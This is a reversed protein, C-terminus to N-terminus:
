QQPGKEPRARSRVGGVRGRVALCLVCEPRAARARERDCEAM